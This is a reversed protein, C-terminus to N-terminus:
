KHSVTKKIFANAEQRYIIGRQHLYNLALCIEASYFRYLTNNDINDNNNTDM